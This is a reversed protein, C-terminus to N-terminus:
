LNITIFQCVYFYVNVDTDFTSLMELINAIKSCHYMDLAIILAGCALGLIQLIYNFIMIMLNTYPIHKIREFITYTLTVYLATSILFWVFDLLRIQTKQVLGNADYVISFPWLGM